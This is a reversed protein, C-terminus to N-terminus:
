SATPSTQPATTMARLRAIVGPLVQLVRSIHEETSTRGITLRLANGALEPSLGLALLVHSPDISGATCASGSSAAIGQRDLSLLISEGDVGKFSFNANNPLRLQPHGNLRSDPVTELVGAILQDRLRSVRAAEHERDALALELARAMGVIAAVNETGARRNREQGGGQQLPLWPTGRRVYLAGVGKPGYFKHASMSLLDVGLTGVDIPMQGASQVADTHFPITHAHAIAGIEALPQITGIENNAHMISILVTTPRIAAAVAAPDVIGHADVPLYTTEVGFAELWECTHLVAHHEIATTIIHNGRERAAWVVGKIAANDSESGGSTFIVESPRAALAKSVTGRASDLAQRTARAAAYLSSPNGFYMTFYPLMAEVVRPDVPTTAAHDLYITEDQM